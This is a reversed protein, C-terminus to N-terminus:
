PKAITLVMQIVLEADIHQHGDNAPVPGVTFDFRSFAQEGKIRIHDPAQEVVDFTVPYTKTAGRLNVTADATYTKGAKLKVNAVDITMAHFKGTNIFNPSRLDEDREASDTRLSDLDVEITATGGEITNPDFSSRTVRFKDFHVVVPDEETKPPTHKAVVDIHDGNPNNATPVDSHCGLAVLCILLLTKMGM